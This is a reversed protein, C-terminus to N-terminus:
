GGGYGQQVTHTAMNHTMNSDERGQAVSSSYMNCGANHRCRGNDKEGVRIVGGLVRGIGQKHAGDVQHTVPEDGGPLGVHVDGESCKLNEGSQGFDPLWLLTHLARTFQKNDVNTQRCPIHNTSEIRTCTPMRNPMRPILYGMSTQFHLSFSFKSFNCSVFIDPMKCTGVCGSYFIIAQLLNGNIHWHKRINECAKVNHKLFFTFATQM